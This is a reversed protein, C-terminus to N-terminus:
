VGHQARLGSLTKNNVFQKSLIYMIHRLKRMAMCVHVYSGIFSSGNALFKMINNFSVPALQVCCHIFYINMSTYQLFRGVPLIKHSFTKKKCSSIISLNNYNRIMFSNQQKRWNTWLIYSIRICYSGTLTTHKHPNGNLQNSIIIYPLSGAQALSHVM